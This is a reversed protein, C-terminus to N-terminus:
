DDDIPVGALRKLGGIAALAKETGEALDDVADAAIPSKDAIQLQARLLATKDAVGRLIRAVRDHVELARDQLAAPNRAPDVQATAEASQDVTTEPSTGRELERKLRFNDQRLSELQDALQQRAEEVEALRARTAAVEEHMRDVKAALEALDAAAPPAPPRTEVPYAPEVVAPSIIVAPERHIESPVRPPAAPPPEVVIPLSIPPQATPRQDRSRPGRGRATALASPAPAAQEQNLEYVLDDLEADAAPRTMKLDEEDETPLEQLAQQQAIANEDEDEIYRLWLSGCRVVDNHFLVHKHVRRENVHTGNSSGLDEVCFRGGEM